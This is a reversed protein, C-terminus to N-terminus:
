VTSPHKVGTQLGVMRTLRQWAQGTPLVRAGLEQAQDMLSDLAAPNIGFPSPDNSVDHTFLIVWGGHRSAHRMAKLARQIWLPNPNLDCAALQMRDSGARNVGTMAGRASLVQGQLARKLRLSTIGYPYALHQSPAHGLIQGLEERNQYFDDLAVQLPMASMAGHCHGHLAIEHREALDRVMGADLCRGSIGDRGLLGTAIHWTGCWGRRELLAAGNEVSSIPADDFSFTLLFESPNQMIPSVVRAACYQRALRDRIGYRPAYTEAM